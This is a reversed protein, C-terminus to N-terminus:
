MEKWLEAAVAASRRLVEEEDLGPLRGSRLVVRGGVLVSDVPAGAIGFLLHGLFNDERIPTPPRYDVVVLDAFAGPTLVGLPRRFFRAAIRPNNELLMGCVEATGVRPDRRVLKHLLNAARLEDLPGASFGDSGLGVVVGKALMGLVDATGVANNCNSQPNHVVPTGTGALVEMDEEDIYVCHVALTREGLVGRDSLRGVVSTGWHRMAHELDARDEAVHVHFGAGDAAEVCRALTEDSLTFSAHLGFSAALHEPQERACAEIFSRNELIGEEAVSSGDRDSVEYSLCARLGVKEVARAITELSGRCAFPSAHHDFVTTAGRRVCDILGVLASWYVAEQGLAKDLRWWVRELIEVFNSPAESPFPMGRALSSYLHTHANILGPMILMGPFELRRAGPRDEELQALEGVARVGSGEILVAGGPIIRNPNELTVVLGGSVLTASQEM